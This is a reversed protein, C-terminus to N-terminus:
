APHTSLDLSQEPVGRVNELVIKVERISLVEPLRIPKRARVANIGEPELNWVHRFLFLLSNFAQNQTSAAVHKVLALYTIYDQFSATVMKDLNKESCYILYKRCWHLYCKEIRLAYHRVRM